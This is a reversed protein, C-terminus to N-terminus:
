GEVIGRGGAAGNCSADVRRALDDPVITVGAAVVAEEETAGVGSEVIGQGGAAGLCPADIIQPLNGTSVAGISDDVAEEIASADEGGDVIGNYVALGKCM